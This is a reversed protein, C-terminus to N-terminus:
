PRDETRLTEAFAALRALETDVQELISHLKDYDKNKAATEIDAYLDGLIIAAGSRAEGKAGHAAAAAARADAQSASERLSQTSETLAEILSDVVDIMVDQDSTDLLESLRDMDVPQRAAGNLDPGAGSGDMASPPGAAAAADNDTKDGDPDEDPDAAGSLWKSLMASLQPITVPKGLFDDMGAKLCKEVDEHFTNATLAIVTIAHEDGADKLHQRLRRTFEYGNMVPMSCDCLVLEYASGAQIKDLADRGNDATDCTVGLRQLQRKITKQNILRDEVLLIHKGRLKAEPAHRTHRSFPGDLRPKVGSWHGLNRDLVHDDFSPPFLYAFGSRM